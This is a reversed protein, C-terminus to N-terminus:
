TFLMRELMTMESGRESCPTGAGNKMVPTWCATDKTMKTSEIRTNLRVRHAYTGFINDRSSCKATNKNESDNTSFIESFLRLTESMGRETLRTMLHQKGIEVCPPCHSLEFNSLTGMRTADWRSRISMHPPTNPAANTITDRLAPSNASDLLKAKPTNMARSEKSDPDTFRTRAPNSPFEKFNFGKSVAPYMATGAASISTKGVKKM